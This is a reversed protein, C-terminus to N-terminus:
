HEIEAVDIRLSEWQPCDPFRVSHWRSQWPSARRPVPAPDPWRRLRICYLVRRKHTGAFGILFNFIPESYTTMSYGSGNPTEKFGGLKDSVEAKSLISNNLLLLVRLNRRSTCPRRSEDRPMM